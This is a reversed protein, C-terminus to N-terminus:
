VCAALMKRFRARHETTLPAAVPGLTLTTGLHDLDLSPARGAALRFSMVWLGDYDAVEVSYAEMSDIGPVGGIEITPGNSFWKAVAAADLGAVSVTLRVGEECQMSALICEPAEEIGCGAGDYIWVQPVALDPATFTPQVALAPATLAALWLFVIAGKMAKAGNEFGRTAPRAACDPTALRWSM